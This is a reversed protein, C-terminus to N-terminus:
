LIPNLCMSIYIVYIFCCPGVTYCLSGYEIVQLLRYHFFFRFFFLYICAVSDSQQVHSVLMVKYIFCLSFFFFM